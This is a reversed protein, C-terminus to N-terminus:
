LISEDVFSPNKTESGTFIVSNSTDVYNTGQYSAGEYDGNPSAGIFDQSGLFSNVSKYSNIERVEAGFTQLIFSSNGGGGGCGRQAVPQGARLKYSKNTVKCEL